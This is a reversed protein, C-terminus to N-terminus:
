SPDGQTSAARPTWRARWEDELIAMLGLSWFAGGVRRVERLHGERAFGEAEYCRIAATNFDFVGLDIRHLHLDDFGVQLARRVMAQGLGQGRRRRDIMVRCLRASHEDIENLEIHGVPEGAAVCATYIRRIPAAGEGSARYTELQQADLPFHFFPGAWQVLAEPSDIWGLLRDFDLRDFPRLFLDTV